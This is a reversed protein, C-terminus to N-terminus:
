GLLMGMLAAAGIFRLGYYVAAALPNRLIKDSVELWGRGAARDLLRFLGWLILLALVARVLDTVTSLIVAYEM